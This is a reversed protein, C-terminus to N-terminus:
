ENMGKPQNPKKDFHRKDRFYVFAKNMRSFVFFRKIWRKESQHCQKYLYGQASMGDVQIEKRDTLEHGLERIHQWLDLEDDPVPLYLTLPRLQRRTEVRTIPRDDEVSEEEKDETENTGYSETEAM